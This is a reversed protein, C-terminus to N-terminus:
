MRRFAAGTRGNQSSPRDLPDGNLPTAPATGTDTVATAYGRRLGAEMAPYGAALVGGFGGNGNGHFVGRWGSLPLWVEVGM